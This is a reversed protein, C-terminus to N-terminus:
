QHDSSKTKPFLFKPVCKLTGCYIIDDVTTDTPTRGHNPGCVLMVATINFTFM